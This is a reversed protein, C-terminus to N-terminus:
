LTCHPVHVAPPCTPPTARRHLGRAPPHSLPLARPSPTGQIEPYGVNSIFTHVMPLCTMFGIAQLGLAAVTIAWMLWSLDPGCLEVAPVPSATAAALHRALGHGAVAILQRHPMVSTITTNVLHNNVVCHTAAVPWAAVPLLATGLGLSLAGIRRYVKMPGLRKLIPKVAFAQSGCRVRHVM